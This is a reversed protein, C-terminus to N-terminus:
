SKKGHRIEQILEVIGQIYLARPDFLREEDFKISFEQELYAVISFSDISDLIGSQFLHVTDDLEDESVGKLKIIYARLKKRITDATLSQEDL